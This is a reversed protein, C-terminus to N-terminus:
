QYAKSKISYGLFIGEDSRADFKGIDEDRKVYCKRGFINFYKVTPKFGFWLEFPTKGFNDNVNVWNLTYVVTSVAESWYVHPVNGEIMM